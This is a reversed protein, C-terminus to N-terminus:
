DTVRLLASGLAIRPCCQSAELDPEALSIVSTFFPLFVDIRTMKSPSMSPSETSAASKVTSPTAATAALQYEPWASLTNRVTPALPGDAVGLTSTADPEIESAAPLLFLLTNVLLEAASPSAGVKSTSTVASPVPTGTLSLSTVMLTVALSVRSVLGVIETPNTALSARSPLM